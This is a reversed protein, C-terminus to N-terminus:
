GEVSFLFAAPLAYKKNVCPIIVKGMERGSIAPLCSSRIIQLDYHQKDSPIFKYSNKDCMKPAHAHDSGFEGQRHHTTIHAMHYLRGNEIALIDDFMLLVGMHMQGGTIVLGTVHDGAQLLNKFEGSNGYMGGGGARLKFDTMVWESATQQFVFADCWGTSGAFMTIRNEVVVIGYVGAPTQFFQPKGTARQVTRTAKDTYPESSVTDYVSQLFDEIDDSTLGAQRALNLNWDKVAQSYIAPAALILFFFLM